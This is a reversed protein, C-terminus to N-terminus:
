RGIRTPHVRGDAAERDRCFLNNRARGQEDLRDRLPIKAPEIKRIALTDEDVLRHRCQFLAPDLSVLDRVADQGPM